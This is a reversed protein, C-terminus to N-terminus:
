IFHVESSFHYDVALGLELVHNGGPVLHVEDVPGVFLALVVSIVDVFAPAFHGSIIGFIGLLGALVAVPAAMIQQLSVIITGRAPQEFRLDLVTLLPPQVELGKRLTKILIQLRDALTPLIQIIM